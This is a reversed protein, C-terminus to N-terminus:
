AAGVPGGLFAAAFDVDDAVPVPDPRPLNRVARLGDALAGVTLEVWLGGAAGDVDPKLSRAGAVLFRTGGVMAKALIASPGENSHAIVVADSLVVLADIEGDTLVRDLVRVPVGAASLRALNPEADARAAPECPGALIFGVGPVDRAVEVLADAVLPVNKRSTIAGLVSFWFTGAHLGLSSRLEDVLSDSPAFLTPDKIWSSDSGGAQGGLRLIRVRPMREARALLRGKLWARSRGAVGPTAFVRPDRMVLGVLDAPLDWPRQVALQMLFFDGEPVLVLDAATARAARRTEHV